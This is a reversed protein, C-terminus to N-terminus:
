HFLQTLITEKLPHDQFIKLITSVHYPQHLAGKIAEFQSHHIWAEEMKGKVITVEFAPVGQISVIRTFPSTEGYNWSHTRYKENAITEIREIEHPEIRRIELPTLHREEFACLFESMFTLVDKEIPLNPYINCVEARNSSISNKEKTLPHQHLLKGVRDLDTHFLLTGHHILRNKHFGQANGSIKKGELYIDSKGHFSAPIGLDRLTEIIPDLVAQYHSVKGKYDNTIWTFNINGLDHYVCGGGSIRRIVPIQHENAYLLSVEHYPNQNRGLIVSPANRWLYFLDQTLNAEKLFYEELALNFAPDLHNQLITQM